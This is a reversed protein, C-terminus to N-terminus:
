GSFEDDTLLNEQGWSTENLTQDSFGTGDMKIEGIEVSPVLKKRQINPITATPLSTPFSQLGTPKISNVTKKTTRLKAGFYGEGNEFDLDSKVNFDHIPTFTVSVDLLHPVKNLTKKNSVDIEWPYTTNWTLTVGSIFGNQRYLLDGITVRTLTGRMFNGEKSYSPATTAALMNLKRYMNKLQDENFSAVKFGFNIDRGFGQYTYFQEARGIYQTSNWTGTFDDTYSDLFANFFLTSSKDPTISSFSFPILQEGYADSIATEDELTTDLTTSEIIDIGAIPNNKAGFRSKLSNKITVQNGVPSVFSNDKVLKSLKEVGENVLKGKVKDYGDKYIGLDSADSAFGVGTGSLENTGIIADRLDAGGFKDLNFRATLKAIGEPIGGGDFNGGDKASNYRSPKDKLDSVVQGTGEPDFGMAGKMSTTDLNITNKLFNKFLQKVVGGEGGVDDLYFRGSTNNIFHTGTGMVPIQKAINATFGVNGLFTGVARAGVTRLLNGVRTGGEKSASAVKQNLEQQSQQLIAFNAQFKAGSATGLFKTFRELDTLRSTVLNYKFDFPKQILTQPSPNRPNVSTSGDSKFREFQSRLDIFAM